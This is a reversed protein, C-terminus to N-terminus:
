VIVKGVPSQWGRLWLDDSNDLSFPISNSYDSFIESRFGNSFSCDLLFHKEDEVTQTNCLKCFRLHRPQRTEPPRYRGIEIELSHSSTRLKAFDRRHSLPLMTVYNEMSFTTKVKALTCLKNPEPKNVIDLWSSKYLDILKDKSFCDHEFCDLNSPLNALLSAWSNEGLALSDCYADHALSNTPLAVRDRYKISHALFDILLPLRGIEGRAAANSSNRRIGLLYKCMSLNLKEWPSSDCLSFLNSNCLKPNVLITWIECCYMLIPKVLVDFFKLTLKVNNTLDHRRFKFYARRAKDGLDLLAKKFSGTISFTIGLYTYNRVVKLLNEGM